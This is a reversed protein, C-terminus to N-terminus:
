HTTLQHASNARDASEATHGIKHGGMREMADLVADSPWM